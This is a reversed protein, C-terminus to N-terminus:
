RPTAPSILKLQLSTKSTVLIQSSVDIGLARLISELYGHKEDRELRVEGAAIRKQLQAVPDTTATAYYNIAPHQLVTFRQLMAFSSPPIVIMTLVLAIGLLRM